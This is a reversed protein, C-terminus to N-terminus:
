PMCKRRGPDPLSPGVAEKGMYILTLTDTIKKEKLVTYGLKTYFYINKEDKCGTWLAFKQATSFYNEVAHMLTKGLGRNRYEPHVFLKGIHCIGEQQFGRVSGIIHSTHTVKFFIQQRFEKELEDPTQTLPQLTNDSYRLAHEQYCLKQLALIEVLDQQTAKQIIM